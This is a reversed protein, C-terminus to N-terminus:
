QMKGSLFEHSMDRTDGVFTDLTGTDRTTGNEDVKLNHEAM